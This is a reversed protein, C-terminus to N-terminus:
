KELYLDVLGDPLDLSIFKNELDFGLLFAETFPILIESGDKFVQLLVQEPSEMVAAVEGLRGHNEDFVAFGVLAELDVNEVGAPPGNKESPVYVRCGVFRQALEPSDYDELTVRFYDPSVPGEEAVFFPVLGGDIELFIFNSDLAFDPHKKGFIITLEGTKKNVKSITGAKTFDQKEMTVFFGSCSGSM